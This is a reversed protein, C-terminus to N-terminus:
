DEDCLMLIGAIMSVFLLTCIKFGISIPRNNKISDCYIITMPVCWLLPFVAFGMLITGLIMFVKALTKLTNSKKVVSVERNENVACGCYVCVDADENIERGCNVCYQM